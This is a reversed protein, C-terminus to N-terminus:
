GYYGYGNCALLNDIAREMQGEDVRGPEWLHELKLKVAAKISNPITTNDTSGAQFRVTVANPVDRPTPWVVGFAPVVYGPTEASMVATYSTSSATSGNTSGFTTLVGSADYYKIWRVKTLPPLPLTVRDDDRCDPFADLVADYTAACFQRGGPIRRQCYDIAEAMKRRLEINYTDATLYLHDKAEQLSIPTTSAATVLSLEM